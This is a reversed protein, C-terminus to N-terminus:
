LALMFAVQRELQSQLGSNQESLSNLKGILSKNENEISSFDSEAKVMEARFKLQVQKVTLQLKDVASQKNALAGTLEVVRAAEHRLDRRLTKNEDGLKKLETVRRCLRIMNSM